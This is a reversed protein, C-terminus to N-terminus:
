EYQVQIDFNYTGSASLTANVAFIIQYYGSAVLPTNGTYTEYSDLTTGDLTDVFVWSATTNEYIHISFEDFDGSTVNTTVSVTMNHAATDQNKLYLCESFNQPTGPEVPFDITVTSGSISTGAPAYDGELWLLLPTGVIVSGDIYMYRYAAASASAILLSSIILTVIKVIKKYNTKM